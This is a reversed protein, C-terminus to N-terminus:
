ENEKRKLIEHVILAAIVGAIINAGLVTFFNGKLTM